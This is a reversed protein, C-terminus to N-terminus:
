SQLALCEPIPHHRTSGNRAIDSQTRPGADRCNEISPTLPRERVLDVVQDRLRGDLDQIQSWRHTIAERRSALSPTPSRRAVLDDVFRQVVDFNIEGVGDYRLRDIITRCDITELRGAEISTKM